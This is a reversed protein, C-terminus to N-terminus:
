PQALLALRRTEDILQQRQKEAKQEALLAFGQNLRGSGGTLVVIADTRRDPAEVDNPLLGSFWILGGLWLALLALALGLGRLLLASRWRLGGQELARAM